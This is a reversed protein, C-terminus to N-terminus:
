ASLSGRPTRQYASGAPALSIASRRQAAERHALAQVAQPTARAQARLADFGQVDLAFRQDLDAAPKPSDANM